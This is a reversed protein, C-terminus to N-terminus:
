LSAEVIQKRINKVKESISKLTDDSLTVKTNSKIVTLNQDAKTEPQNFTYTFEVADFEAYLDKLESALNSYSDDNAYYELLEILNQLTTKQEGIRNVLDEVKKAEIAGVAFYISEIWGGALILAAIDNKENTKLYSDGSQYAEAVLVMLSDKEGINNTLRDVLDPSFIDAMGLEESLKQTATIYSPASEETKDFMTLYGLDAGYVGLNLAKHFNTSYNTYNDPTNLLEQNFPVGSKKILSATLFPSPISFIKGNMQFNMTNPVTDKPKVKNIGGDDSTSSDGCRVLLLSGGLLATFLLLNPKM